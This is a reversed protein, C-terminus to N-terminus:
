TLLNAEYPGYELDCNWSKPLNPRTQWVAALYKPSIHGNPNRPPLVRNCATPGPADTRPGRKGNEPPNNPTRGPGRNIGYAVLLFAFNPAGAMQGQGLSCLPRLPPQDATRYISPRPGQGKASARPGPRPGQSRAGLAKGRARPGLGKAPGQGKLDM